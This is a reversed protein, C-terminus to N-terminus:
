DLNLQVEVRENNNFPENQRWPVPNAPSLQQRNAVLQVDESIQWVRGDQTNFSNSEPIVSEGSFFQNFDDEVTRREIGSLSNGSSSLPETKSNSAITSQAHAPHTVGAIAVLVGLTTLIRHRM